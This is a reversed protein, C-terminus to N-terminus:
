LIGLGKAGFLAAILGGIIAYVRMELTAIRGRQEAVLERDAKARDMSNLREEHRDISPRLTERITQEVSGVRRNTELLLAYIDANTVRVGNGPPDEAVDALGDSSVPFAPSVGWREQGRHM